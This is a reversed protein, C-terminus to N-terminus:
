RSTRSICLSAMATAYIRGGAASWRDDASWSGREPGQRVQVAALATRMAELQRRASEEGMRKLAAALFYRGYYDLDSPKTAALRRVRAKIAARRAAPVLNGEAVDLLSMAGMATLTHDLVELLTGARGGGHISQVLEVYHGITEENVKPASWSGVAREFKINLDVKGRSVYRKVLDRVRQEQAYDMKPLKVSLELYRSNLSRAEGSIKGEPWEAETKAFGTMSKIM